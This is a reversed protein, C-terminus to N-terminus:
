YPIPRLTVFNIDGQKITIPAKGAQYIPLGTNPDLEPVGAITLGGNETLAIQDALAFEIKNGTQTVELNKDKTVTIDVTDGAQIQESKVDTANSSTLTFGQNLVDIADGVTNVTRDGAGVTYSPAKISGDPNVTAGGGLTDLADKLQSVNVADTLATGVAVDHIQNGGFSVNGQQITIADNGIVAGITLSGNGTLNLQDNIDVTVKAGNPTTETTVTTNGSPGAVFEVTDNPNVKESVDNGGADKGTLNWGSDALTDALSGISQNTAFLQSGNIADTSDANIRGAAVNTITRENGASGVSVTGRPQAGAFVYNVGNLTIDATGVAEETTSGAGLAVDYANNAQANHGVATSSQGSASAGAGAALANTGTAGDNAYNSGAGTDSANVSYYHSEAAKLQAVNVADDDATGAAVGTIQRSGVDVAGRTATTAAIATGNAGTPVYGAMGAARNAVSGAGLAVGEEVNVATDAGLALAKNNGAAITVNSGLVFSNDSHITINNGIGYSGSGTITIPDGFAGSNNGSINHGTGVAISNEGTVTNGTGIATSNAGSVTNNAGVAIAELGTVKSATGIAISDQETAKTASETLDYNSLLTLLAMAEDWDGSDQTNNYKEVAAVLDAYLAYYEDLNASGIAIARASASEAALGVSIAGVDIAGALNGLAVSGNGIARVSSGLAVSGNGIATSSHGVAVGGQDAYSVSGVAVSDHGMAKALFGYAVSYYEAAARQGIAVTLWDSADAGTGIAIGGLDAKANRGIAITNVALEDDDSYEYDPNRLSSWTSGGSANAGCGIAIASNYAEAEGDSGCISKSIATGNGTGGEIGVASFAMPSVAMLAGLVASAIALKAASARKGRGKTNESVAVYTGSAENWVSKYIHNM